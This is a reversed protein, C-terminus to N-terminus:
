DLPKISDIELTAGFESVWHKVNEDSELADRAAQLREGNVRQQWAAPTEHASSGAKIVVKVASSLTESLGQEIRSQHSANLLDIYQPDIRLNVQKETRSEFACQLVINRTMGRIPSRHAVKIWDDNSNLEALPFRETSNTDTRDTAVSEIPVGEEMPTRTAATQEGAGSVMAPTRSAPMQDQSNQDPRHQAYEAYEDSSPAAEVPPENPADTPAPKSTQARDAESVPATEAPSREFQPKAPEPQSQAVGPADNDVVLDLKTRSAASSVPSSEHRAQARIDASAEGKTEGRAM